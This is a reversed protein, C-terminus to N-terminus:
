NSAYHEDQLCLEVIRYLESATFPKVLVACWGEKPLAAVFKPDASTMVITHQSQQPFRARLHDLLVFGNEDPMMLDVLVLSYQNQALLAFAEERSAAQDCRFEREQLLQNIWNRTLPDSDLILVHREM